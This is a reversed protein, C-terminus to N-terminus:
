SHEFVRLNLFLIASRSFMGYSSTLSSYVQGFPLFSFATYVPVRFLLDPKSLSLFTATPGCKDMGHMPSAADSVEVPIATEAYVKKSNITNVNMSSNLMRDKDELTDCFYVGNIYLRGITYKERKAIRKLFLRM